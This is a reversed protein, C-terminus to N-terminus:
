YIGFQDSLWRAHISQLMCFRNRLTENFL